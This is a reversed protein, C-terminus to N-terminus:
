ELALFILFIRIQDCIVHNGILAAILYARDEIEESIYDQNALDEKVQKDRNDHVRKHPLGLGRLQWDLRM